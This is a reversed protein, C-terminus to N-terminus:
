LPRVLVILNWDYPLMAAAGDVHVVDMVPLDDLEAGLLECLVFRTM